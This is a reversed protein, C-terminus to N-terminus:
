HPSACYDQLQNETSDSLLKAVNVPVSKLVPFGSIPDRAEDSTIRNVNVERFGYTIQLLGQLIESQEVVAVRIKLSGKSSTVLVMDGDNVKLYLADKPHMELVPYSVAKKFRPIHHYCSNNFMSQRAGTILVFRYQGDPRTSSCNIPRYTPLKDYGQKNLYNSTFEIKGSPTIFGDTLYKAYRYPKFTYGVPEGGLEDLTVGLPKILWRNLDDEDTWTFYKEMGMKDALHSWFQYENQCPTFGLVKNTLLLTQPKEGYIIESKELFSASPLVYDALKATDTMFLDRVVFLDLSRLAKKVKSTNPNTLVPNAGTLILARLPYPKGELMADMASISHGEKCNEYFIPYEKAGIPNMGEVRDQLDQTLSNLSPTEELRDGGPSDTCGLLAGICAIARINNFGNGHHELGVGVRYTARPASKAIMKSVKYIEERSIGTEKEVYGIDFKQVYRALRRFGKTYKRIYDRDYWENNILINIIGLALAGDTSPKIQLYIDTFKSFSNKRPDILVVKAGRKRAKSIVNYLPFHSVLPNSGWIVICTAGSFDPNPYSGLVTKIAVQKSVACLTDNSFVNPTGLAYAFRKCIDRQTSGVLSEGRWVGVSSAGYKYKTLMVRRAIEHLAVEIDVEQWKDGVRKLPKFLREPSYVLDLIANGKVCLRGGTFPYAKDGAIKIIKGQKVSVIIPCRYSCMRCYTNVNYSADGNDNNLM